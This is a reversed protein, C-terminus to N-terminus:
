SACGPPAPGVRVLSITGSKGANSGGTFTFVLTAHGCDQFALTGSGVAASAPRPTSPSDFVGGTTEYLTYPISRSGAAYGGQGTYWRQGAIGAAAGGPAYTYWAFFLATSAPNVEVTIGQGSTAPDFWNGSLAFDPDTPRVTGAACTVNKTIRTLAISGSRNSGDSFTYDLQGSTCSDFRLTASGVSVATTTPLANFNGGTNRYITLPISPQGSAVPGSMTLWRQREAGGAINDYTFWSVQALGLAPFIEVEVGQGDTAPEFWSGTLGHQDLDLPSSSTGDAGLINVSATRVTTNGLTGIGQYTWTDVGSQGPFPTYTVFSPIAFGNAFAYTVTGKTPPTVTVIKEIIQWSAHIEAASVIIDRLPIQTGPSDHAVTAMAIAPKVSDLYAAIAALDAPSGPANMGKANVADIIAANGAANYVLGKPHNVNNHCYACNSAFLAAGDQASAAAIFFFVSAFVSAAIGPKGLRPSRM